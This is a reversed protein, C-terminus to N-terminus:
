PHVRGCVPCASNNYKFLDMDRPAVVFYGGVALQVIMEESTLSPMPMNELRGIERELGRVESKLDEIRAAQDANETRLREIEAAQTALAAEYDNRIDIVILQNVYPGDMVLNGSPESLASIQEDTYLM